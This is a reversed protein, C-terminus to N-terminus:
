IPEIKAKEKNFYATECKFFQASKLERVHQNLDLNFEGNFDSQASAKQIERLKALLQHTKTVPPNARNAFNEIFSNVVAGIPM